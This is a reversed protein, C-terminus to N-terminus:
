GNWDGSPVSSAASSLPPASSAEGPAPPPRLCVSGPLAPAAEPVVARAEAGRMVAGPGPLSPSQIPATVPLGDLSGGVLWGNAALCSARGRLEAASGPLLVVLLPLLLAPAPAAPPAPWRTAAAYAATDAAWATMM